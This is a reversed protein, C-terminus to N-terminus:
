GVDIESNQGHMIIPAHIIKAGFYQAILQHGLCIGLIPINIEIAKKIIPYLSILQNPHGPGPGIVISKFLSLDINLDIENTKLILVSEGLQSFYDILIHAFSDYHDIFLLM